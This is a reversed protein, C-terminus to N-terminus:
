SNTRAPGRSIRAPREMGFLWWSKLRSPQAVLETRPSDSTANRSRDTRGKRTATSEDGGPDVEPTVATPSERGGGRSATGEGARVNAVLAHTSPQTGRFHPAPRPPARRRESRGFTAITAANAAPM